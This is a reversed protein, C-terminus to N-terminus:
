PTDRVSIRFQGANTGAGAATSATVRLYYTGPTLAASIQSCAVSGGFVANDNSARVAQTQDLLELMTDLEPGLGCTGLVGSTEFVYTAGKPIQVAYTAVPDVSTIYDIAYTNVFLRTASAFNGNPKSAFPTGVVVSATAAQGAAVTVASAAAGGFWGLRRGPIGITQDNADDEGAVVYYSGTPVSSVSYSGNSVAVSRFMDGTSANIIRVFSKRTSSTINNVANYANVVGYGYRDDRGPAGLDVATAQLRQRLETNTMSPNTALVLAAVGTVHPASMSTGTYYAYNPTHTVFNYTTSVVGGGGGCCLRFDGGPASLSINAGVNSYSALQLDPGLSAVALVQPYAAPYLPANTSGNGAAAVILSGAETAAAVAARLVSNDGSGGLSMNIVRAGTPAQVTASDAGAAPLGAAYLIGQAIDFYSGSGTIDLVRVPRIQVKWNLGSTGVGDNGPAGITGSVHLGHDGLTSRVLCGGSIGVFDDPLTPDPGPGVENLTSTGGGSTACIPTPTTLRDGAAVFNYGDTTFNSAMGPHDFRVGQDVVAVLVQASGTNTGWVRFADVLNYHWYENLLYPDNSLTLAAATQTSGVTAGTPVRLPTAETATYDGLMPVIEDVTVSEITPDSTLTAIAAAMDAGDPVTVRAALIAPSVEARKVVNRGTYASLTRQMASQNRVIESGATAVARSAGVMTPKFQVILRRSPARATVIPELSAAGRVLTALPRSSPVQNASFAIPPATGVAVTGSLSSITLRAQFVVRAGPITTTTATVSQVGGVEALTWTVQAQGQADTTSTAASLHATPDSTTWSVTVGGVPRDKPDAVRVILPALATGGPATTTQGDGSVLTLKAPRSLEPATADKGGCGAALIALLAPAILLRSHIM